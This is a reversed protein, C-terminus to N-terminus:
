YLLGFTWLPIRNGFGIETDDVALFSNPLDKIQDFNKGKGGVEITITADVLFDRIHHLCFAFVNNM